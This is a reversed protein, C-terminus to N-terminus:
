NKFEEVTQSIITLETLVLIPKDLFKIVQKM